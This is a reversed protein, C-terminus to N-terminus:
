IFYNPIGQDNIIIHFANHDSVGFETGDFVSGNRENFYAFLREGHNFKRFVWPHTFYTFEQKRTGPGLKGVFGNKRGDKDVWYIDIAYPLANYFM